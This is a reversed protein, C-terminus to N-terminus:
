TQVMEIDSMLPWLGRAARVTTLGNILEGREAGLDRLRLLCPGTTGSLPRCQRPGKRFVTRTDDNLSNKKQKGHSNNIPIMKILPARLADFM